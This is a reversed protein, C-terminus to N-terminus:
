ICMHYCLKSLVKSSNNQVGPIYNLRIDRNIKNYYKLYKKTIFYTISLSSMFSIVGLYVQSLM